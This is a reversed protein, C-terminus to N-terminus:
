SNMVVLYQIAVNSASLLVLNNTSQVFVSASTIDVLSYAGIGVTYTINAYRGDPDPASVLTFTHSAGVDSNYVILLDRGSSLFSNGNVIDAATFVKDLSAPALVGPPLLIFAPNNTLLTQSM